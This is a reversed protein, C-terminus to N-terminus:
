RHNGNIEAVLEKLEDRGLEYREHCFHCEVQAKGEQQIISEIEEKGLSILTQRVRDVSCSCSFTVPTKGLWRIHEGPFIAEIINEPTYGEDVMKSVPPLQHLHSELDTIVEDEVEPMLQLIYGGSAKVTNDPNVLVGVGVASPTQESQAFYYTFDEGIEGNVIPSSGRYPEGVGLHKTVYINGSTGVARGVDLKGHENLPFHVHPNGVFGRVEGDANADVVVQGLPGGGQVQITLKEQGKLMAGMMTGVSLTRGLAASAVPWLDHRKRCEEAVRTTRVAYIRVQGNLCLAKSLYDENKQAQHTRSKNDTM